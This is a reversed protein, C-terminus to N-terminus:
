TRITKLNTSSKRKLYNFNSIIEQYDARFRRDSKIQAERPRLAKSITRDARELVERAGQFASLRYRMDNKGMFENFEKVENALLTKVQKIKEEVLKVDKPDVEDNMFRPSLLQIDTM